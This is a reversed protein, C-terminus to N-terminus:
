RCAIGTHVRIEKRDHRPHEANTPTAAPQLAIQKTLLKLKLVNLQSTQDGLSTKIEHPLHRSLLLSILICQTQEILGITDNLDELHDNPQRLLQRVTDRDQLLRYQQDLLRSSNKKLRCLNNGQIPTQLLQQLQTHLTTQQQQLTYHINQLRQNATPDATTIPQSSTAATMVAAACPLPHTQTIADTHRYFVTLQIPM